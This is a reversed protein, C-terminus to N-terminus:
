TWTNKKTKKKPYMSNGGLLIAPSEGPWSQERGVLLLKQLRRRRAHLRRRVGRVDSAVRFLLAHAAPLDASTRWGGGNEEGGWGLQLALLM